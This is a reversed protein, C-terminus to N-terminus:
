RAFLSAAMVAAAVGGESSSIVDPVHRMRVVAFTSAIEEVVRKGFRYGDSVCLCSAM